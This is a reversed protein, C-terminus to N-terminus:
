GKQREQQILQLVKARLEPDSNVTKYIQRYTDPTMNNKALVDATKKKVEQELAARNGADAGASEFAPQYEASLKQLEVNITVFTALDGDSVAAGQNQAATMSSLGLFFAALMLVQLPIRFWRFEKM